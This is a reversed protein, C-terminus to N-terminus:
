VNPVNNYDAGTRGAQGRSGLERCMAPVDDHEFLM